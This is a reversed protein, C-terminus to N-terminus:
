SGSDTVQSTGLEGPTIRQEMERPTSSSLAGEQPRLESGSTRTHSPHGGEAETGLEPMFCAEVALGALHGQVHLVVLAVLLLGVAVRSHQPPCPAPRASPGKRM